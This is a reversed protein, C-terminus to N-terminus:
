LALRAGPLAAHLQGDSLAAGLSRRLDTSRARALPRPQAGAGRWLRDSVSLHRDALRPRRFSPRAPRVTGAAALLRALTRAARAAHPARVFRREGAPHQAAHSAGTM